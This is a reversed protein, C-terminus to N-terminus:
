KVFRVSVMIWKQLKWFAPDTRSGESQVCQMLSVCTEKFPTTVEWGRSDAKVTMWGQFEKSRVLQRCTSVDDSRISLMRACTDLKDALNKLTDEYIEIAKGLRGIRETSSRMARLIDYQTSIVANSLSILSAVGAVISFPDM